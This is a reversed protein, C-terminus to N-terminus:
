FPKIMSYLKAYKRVKKKCCRWKSRSYRMQQLIFSSSLNIHDNDSIENHICLQDLHHWKILKKKSMVLKQKWYSFTRGIRRQEPSWWQRNIKWNKSCVRKGALMIETLQTDILNLEKTHDDAFDHPNSFLSQLSEIRETLKHDHIQKTVYDIYTDVTKNNGASLMRPSADAMSSYKLSFFSELDIDFPIGLHDSLAPTNISLTSINMFSIGFTYIFDIDRNPTLTTSNPRSGLIDVFPDTM